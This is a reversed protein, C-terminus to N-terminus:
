PRGLTILVAAVAALGMGLAQWRSVREHDITMALVVTSVPYLAALVSVLSLLDDRVAILYFVNAAMDLVGAVAALGLGERGTPRLRLVLAVVLLTSMSVIRVAVLPWLGSDDATRDLCVFLGGFGLGAVVAFALVPRPTRQHHAAVVGSVLAVAVVSLVIGVYAIPAPREGSALGVVVPLAISIVATMPAVASMSGRSLAHYFSALGVAGALGGAAGWWWTSASPVPTGAIAVAVVILVLSVSQGFVTVVVAPQRRSARGGCYDAVGYVAASLLAFLVPVPRCELLWVGAPAELPRLPDRVGPRWRTM